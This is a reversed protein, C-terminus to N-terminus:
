SDDVRVRVLKSSAALDSPASVVRTELRLELMSFPSDSLSVPRVRRASASLGDDEAVVGGACGPEKLLGGMQGDDVSAVAHVLMGGLGQEIEAGDENMQAVACGGDGRFGEGADGDGDDAVDEVAADGTGVHEQEAGRLWTMSQPGFSSRGLHGGV